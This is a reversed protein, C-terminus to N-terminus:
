PITYANQNTNKLHIGCNTCFKANPRKPFGCSYCCQNNSRSVQKFFKDATISNQKTTALSESKSGLTSFLGEHTRSDSLNPPSAKNTRIGSTSTLVTESAFKKQEKGSDTPPSHQLSFTQSLKENQTLRSTAKTEYNKESLERTKKGLAAKNVKEKEIYYTVLFGLTMKLGLGIDDSIEKLLKYHETSIPVSVGMCLPDRIRIYSM